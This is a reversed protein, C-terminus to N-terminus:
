FHGFLFLHKLIHFLHKMDSISSTENSSCATTAWTCFFSLTRRPLGSALSVCFFPVVQKTDSICRFNYKLRRDANKSRCTNKENGPFNTPKSNSMRM